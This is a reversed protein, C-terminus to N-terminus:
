AAMLRKKLLDLKARGFMERKLMKLRNIHGETPGNSFHLTVGAKVAAYDRRIGKAFNVLSAIGSQETRTLWSDLQEHQRERVIAAFEQALTIASAIDTQSGGLQGLRQQGTEDLTAAKRLVLWVLGRSSPMRPTPDAISQAQMGSRKKPPLGSALRFHTIYALCTTAGGLYGRNKIERLLVAGTHCGSNWRELIYARIPTLSRETRAKRM